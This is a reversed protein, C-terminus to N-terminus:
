KFHFSNMQYKEDKRREVSSRISSIVKFPAMKVYPTGFLDFSSIDSTKGGVSGRYVISFVAPLENNEKFNGDLKPFVFGSSYAYLKLDDIFARYVFYILRFFDLSPERSIVFTAFEKQPTLYAVAVADGFKVALGVSNHAEIMRSWYNSGEHERAYNLASLHLHNWKAYYANNGLLIHLHPHVQSASARPYADWYIHRFKHDPSLESVKRYWKSALNMADLFQELTFQSPNHHRMLIMGHYKDIKFTNSVIVSHNSELYGFSDTATYMKYKCFDCDKETSSVISNLIELSSDKGGSGPRRSRVPNFVVSEQTYLNDIFVLTQKKTNAILDEDGKLWGRVKVLFTESILIDTKKERVQYISVFNLYLKRCVLNKSSKWTDLSALLMDVETPMADSFCHKNIWSAERLTTTQLQAVGDKGPMGFRSIHLRSGEGVACFSFGTYLFCALIVVIVFISALKLNRLKMISTPWASGNWSDLNVATFNLSRPLSM